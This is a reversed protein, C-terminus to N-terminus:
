YPVTDWVTECIGHQVHQLTQDEPTSWMHLVADTSNYQQWLGDERGHVFAGWAAQMRGCLAEEEGTINYGLTHATCFVFALEVGHCVESACYHYHPGWPDVSLTHNFRYRCPARLPLAPPLPHAACMWLPADSHVPLLHESLVRAATRTPCYFLWDTVIKALATNKDSDPYRCLATLLV